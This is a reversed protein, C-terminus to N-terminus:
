PEQRAERVSPYESVVEINGVISQNLGELDGSPIWYELHAPGGVKKPEYAVLFATRVRFALVAGYGSDPVNWDSAIKEAYEFTLVPYFFPQGDLRSPFARFGTQRILDLEKPGVPRFLLTTRDDSM